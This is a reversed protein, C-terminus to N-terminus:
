ENGGGRRKLEDQLEQMLNRIEDPTMDRIERTSQGTLRDRAKGAETAVQESPDLDAMRSLRVLAEKDDLMGCVRCALMRTTDHQDDLLARVHPRTAILRRAGAEILGDWVEGLTASQLKVIVPAALDQEIGVLDKAVDEPIPQVATRDKPPPAPKIPEGGTDDTKNAPPANRTPASDEPPPRRRPEANGQSNGQSAMVENLRQQSTVAFWLSVAFMPLVIVFLVIPLVPRRQEKAAGALFEEARPSTQRPPHSRASVPAVRPLSVRAPQAPAQAPAAAKPATCRSCRLVGGVRTARGEILDLANVPIGCGECHWVANKYDGLPGQAPERPKIPQRSLCQACITEGDREVADGRAIAGESLPRGCQDCFQLLM